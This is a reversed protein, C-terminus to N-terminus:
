EDSLQDLLASEIATKTETVFQRIHQEIESRGLEGMIRLPFLSVFLASAKRQREPLIHSYRNNLMEVTHGLRAAVEHPPFGMILLFTAHTHRLDYWRVKLRDGILNAQRLMYKFSKRPAIIHPVNGRRAPFILYPNKYLHRQGSRARSLWKEIEPEGLWKGSKKREQTHRELKEMREKLFDVHEPALEIFRISRLSKPPGFGKFKGSGVWQVAREIRLMGTRFNVDDWILAMLEEPRLGTQLNFVLADGYWSCDRVKIFALAEEITLPNASSLPPPPLKTRRVPNYAILKEDAAFNFAASLMDRIKKVTNVALGLGYNTRSNNRM